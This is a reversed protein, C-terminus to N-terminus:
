SMADQWEACDNGCWLACTCLVLCTHQRQLSCATDLASAQSGPRVLADLAEGDTALGDQQPPAASRALGPEGREGMPVPSSGQRMSPPRQANMPASAGEGCPSLQAPAATQEPPSMSHADVFGGGDGRKSASGTGQPGLAGGGGLGARRQRAAYEPAPQSSLPLALQPEQSSGPVPAPERGKSPQHRLFPRGGYLLAGCALSVVIAATAGVFDTGTRMPPPASDLALASAARTHAM